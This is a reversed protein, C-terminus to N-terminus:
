KDEMLNPRKIAPLGENQYQWDIDQFKLDSPSVFDPFMDSYRKARECREVAIEWAKKEPYKEKDHKM